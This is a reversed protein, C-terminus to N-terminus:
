RPRIGMIHDIMLQDLRENYYGRNALAAFDIVESKLAAAAGASYKGVTPKALDAVGAAAMAEKVEPDADFARAAAALALYSRM